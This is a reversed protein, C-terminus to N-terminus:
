QVTIGNDLIDKVLEDTVATKYRIEDEYVAKGEARLRDICRIKRSDSITAQVIQMMLDGHKLNHHKAYFEKRWAPSLLNKFDSVLQPDVTYLDQLCTRLAYYIHKCTACYSHRRESRAIGCVTCVDQTHSCVASM